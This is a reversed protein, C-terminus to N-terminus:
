SFTLQQRAAELCEPCPVLRSQARIAYAAHDLSQFFARHGAIGTSAAGCWPQGLYDAHTHAICRIYEPRNDVVYTGPSLKIAGALALAALGQAIPEGESPRLEVTMHKTM